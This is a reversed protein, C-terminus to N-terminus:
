EASQAGYNAMIRRMIDDKYIGWTCVPMTRCERTGPDEYAFAAPCRILRASDLTRPEEFPLVVVRLVTQLRTNARLVAKPKRGLLLGLAIKVTKWRPHDGLIARTDAIKFLAGGLEKLCLARGIFRALGLKGAIGKEIRAMRVGLKEDRAVVDQVAGYLSKGKLYNSIPVYEKGDSVLFSVSECNPHAGAFTLRPIPLYQSITQFPTLGAPLFELRGGPVAASIVKEADEMATIDAGDAEITGPVWTRTLPIFECAAILDSREHCFRFLDAILHDNVGKAIVCMITAKSRRHKRMNDLAKLKQDYVKADGRLKQYVAPDRGDFAFIIKARTALLEKCYAEDALRLGNTVISTSLGLGRACNVIEVLDKRVTPEGGFLKVSPRPTLSALYKLLKEFYRFPPEFKFGMGPVNAICIPCDQNCRNTIDVFVTTPTHSTKCTTCNLACGGDGDLRAIDRKARWVAPDTSTVTETRGCAPCDKVLLMMGDREEYRAPSLKRCTNCYGFHSSM